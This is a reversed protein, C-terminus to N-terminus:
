LSGRTHEKRFWKRAGCACSWTNAGVQKFDHACNPDGAGHRHMFHGEVGHMRQKTRTREEETMRVFSDKRPLGRNLAMQFAPAILLPWTTEDPVFDVSGGSQTAYGAKGDPNISRYAIMGYAKNNAAKMLKFGNLRSVYICAAVVIMGELDQDHDTQGIKNDLAEGIMYALEGQSESALSPYRATLEKALKESCEFTVTDSEGMIRVTLRYDMQKLKAIEAARQKAQGM